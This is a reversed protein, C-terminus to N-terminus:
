EDVYDLTSSHYAWVKEASFVSIYLLGTEPSQVVYTPEANADPLTITAELNQDSANFVSVTGSGRNAVAFLRDEMM